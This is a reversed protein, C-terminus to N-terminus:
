CQREKVKIVLVSVDDNSEKDPSNTILDIINKAITEINSSYMKLLQIKINESECVAGDSMMIIIDNDKLQTSQKTYNIKNFLGAPYGGSKIVEIKGKNLIYSIYAGCKYFDATASSLSIRCYDVTSFGVGDKIIELTSNVTKLCEDVCIGSKLLKKLLVVTNSSKNYAEKGSGMGDALIVNYYGDKCKFASINDGCVTEGNKAKFLAYCEVSYKEVNEYKLFYKNQEVYKETEFLRIKCAKIITRKLEEFASFETAEFSIAVSQKGTQNYYNTIDIDTCSNSALFNKIKHEASFSVIPSICNQEISQLLKQSSDNYDKCVNEYGKNNENNTIVVYRGLANALKNKPILHYILVAPIPLALLLIGSFSFINLTFYLVYSILYASSIYKKEFKAVMIAIISPMFLQLFMNSYGLNLLAYVGCISLSYLLSIKYEFVYTCLLIILVCFIGSLSIGYIYLSNFACALLILAINLCILDKVSFKTDSKISVILQNLFYTICGCLISECILLLASFASINEVFLFIFGIIFCILAPLIPSYVKKYYSKQSILIIASMIINSIMYKFNSIAFEKTIFGFFSGLLYPIVLINSQPAVAFVSLSFPSVQMKIDAKSILFGIGASIIYKLIIKIIKESTKFFSNYKTSEM